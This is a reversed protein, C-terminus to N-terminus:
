EETNIYFKDISAWYVLRSNDEFVYIIKKSGFLEGRTTCSQRCKNNAEDSALGQIDQLTKQALNM